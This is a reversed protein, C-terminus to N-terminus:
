RNAGDSGEGKMRRVDTSTRVDVFRLEGNKITLIVEGHKQARVTAIARSVQLWQEPPLAQLIERLHFPEFTM